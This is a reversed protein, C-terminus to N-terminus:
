IQCHGRRRRSVNRVFLSKRFRYEEAPVKRRLIKAAFFAFIAFLSYKHAYCSSIEEEGNQHSPEVRWKLRRNSTQEM